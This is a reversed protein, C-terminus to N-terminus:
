KELMGWLTKAYKEELCESELYNKFKMACTDADTPHKLYYQIKDRWNDM